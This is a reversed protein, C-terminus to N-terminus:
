EPTSRPDDLIEIAREPCNQEAVWAKERLPDPVSESTLVPYGDEDEDFLEPCLSYCRGHGSCRELNISIRM